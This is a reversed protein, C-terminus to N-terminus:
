KNYTIIKGGLARLAITSNPSLSYATNIPGDITETGARVISCSFNGMNKVILEKGQWDKSLKLYITTNASVLLTTQNQQTYTAGTIEFTDTIVEELTTKNYNNLKLVYLSEGSTNSTSFNKFLYYNKNYTFFLFNSYKSGMQYSFNSNISDWKVPNVIYPGNKAYILEDENNSLKSTSISSKSKLVHESDTFVTNFFVNLTNKSSDSLFRSIEFTYGSLYGDESIPLYIIESNVNNFNEIIDKFSSDTKYLVIDNMFTGNFFYFKGKSKLLSYMSQSSSYNILATLNTHISYDPNLVIYNPTYGVIIFIVIKNNLFLENSNNLYCASVYDPGEYILEMETWIVLDISQLHLLYEYGNGQEDLTEVDLLINHLSNLNDFSYFIIRPSVITKGNYTQGLYFQPLIRAENSNINTYNIFPNLLEVEQNLAPHTANPALFSYYFTGNEYKDILWKPAESGSSANRRYVAWKHGSKLPNFDIQKDMPLSLTFTKKTTNVATITIRDAPVFEIHNNTNYSYWCQKFLIINDNKFDNLSHGVARFDLTNERQLIRMSADRTNFTRVDRYSSDGEDDYVEQEGGVNETASSINVWLNTDTNFIWLNASGENVALLQNQGGHIDDYGSTTNPNVGNPLVIIDSNGVIAM